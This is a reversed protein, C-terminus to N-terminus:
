PTISGNNANYEYEYEYKYEFSSYQFMGAFLM